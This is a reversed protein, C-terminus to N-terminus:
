EGDSIIVDGPNLCKNVAQVLQANTFPKRLIGCLRAREHPPFGSLPTGSMVIVNAHSHTSFINRIMEIGSMRPMIIDSLILSIEAHRELFLELGERGDRTIIPEFGERDLVARCLEQVIPDDEVVLIKPM